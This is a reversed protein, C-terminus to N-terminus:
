DTVYPIEVRIQQNAALVAGKVTAYVDVDTATISDAAAAILTGTDAAIKGAASIDVGTAIGAAAVVVGTKTVRVGIDLTSSATGAGGVSVVGGTLFRSNVPVRGLLITDNVAHAAHTVPLTAVLVRQRGHSEAPMLKKGDIYKQAQVSNVEAM